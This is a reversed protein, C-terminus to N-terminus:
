YFHATVIPKFKVKKKFHENSLFKSSKKQVNGMYREDMYKLTKPKKTLIHYKYKHHKIKDAKRTQYSCGIETCKFVRPKQHVQM